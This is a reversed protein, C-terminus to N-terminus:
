ATAAPPKTLYPYFVAGIVLALVGQGLLTAPAGLWGSVAGVLLSGLPIMGFFAMSGYSMLRGRMDPAAELQLITFCLTNTFLAGFGCVVALLLALPLSRAQSFSLLGGGTLFTSYGLLVRLSRGKKLAALSFAGALAGLGLGSSLYGFTAANGQFVVKTFVPLLTDYPLVLLSVLALLVILRNLAPTARLYALGAKFEAAANRHTTPKPTAPLKLLLLSVLVALFSLANLLFCIGAGYAQLVLGSLAPGVLRAANVMAANLALANPLDEPQAVLQHVLPQRAPVDFANIIGLLVSLALLQWIEFHQRLVLAALAAAQLLSATQTLLLITRRDYRDSVIGGALSLLFSPFQQAFVTFGLMLTSHTLSYVVWSVATRQMWTGIYSLSQGSFFLAYNRHQFARFASPLQRNM